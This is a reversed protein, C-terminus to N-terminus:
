GDASGQATADGDPADAVFDMAVGNICHRKGTPAPGDDFIHGLHGECRACHVETRPYILKWDTKTGLNRDIGQWFSPWGTRSDYKWQTKYLPLACGACAFTGPEKVDNLPSTYPRETAEERLVAYEDPDLLERWQAQSLRVPTLDDAALRPVIQPDTVAGPASVEEATARVAFPACLTLASGAFLFQRRHM